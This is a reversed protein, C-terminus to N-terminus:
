FNSKGIGLDSMGLLTTAGNGGNGEIITKSTGTFLLVLNTYKQWFNWKESALPSM